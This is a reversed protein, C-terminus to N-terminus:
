VGALGLGNSADRIKALELDQAEATQGYRVANKFDHTSQVMECTQPKVSCPDTLVSQGVHSGELAESFKQRGSGQPIAGGRM